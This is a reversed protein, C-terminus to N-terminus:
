PLFPDEDCSARLSLEAQQQKTHHYQLLRVQKPSKLPQRNSSLDENKRSPSTAIQAWVFWILGAFFLLPSLAVLMPLLVPSALLACAGACLMAPSVRQQDGSTAM